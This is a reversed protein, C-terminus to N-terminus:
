EVIFKIVKGRNASSIKAFYLGYELNIDLAQLLQNKDSSVEEKYRTRGNIDVIELM